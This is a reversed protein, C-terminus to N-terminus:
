HVANGATSPTARPPQTADVAPSPSPPVAASRSEVARTRPVATPVAAPEAAAAPLPAYPVAPAPVIRGSRRIPPPVPEAVAATTLPPRVRALPTSPPAAARTPTPSATRVLIPGGLDPPAARDGTGFAGYLVYLAVPVAAAIGALMLM